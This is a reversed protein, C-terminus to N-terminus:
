PTQRRRAGGREDNECLGTLWVVGSRMAVTVLTEPGEGRTTRPVM